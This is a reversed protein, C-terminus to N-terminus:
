VTAVLYDKAISKQPGIFEFPGKRINILNLPPNTEIPKTNTELCPRMYDLHAKSESIRTIRNSGRGWGQKCRGFVPILPM